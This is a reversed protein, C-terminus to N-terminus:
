PQSGAVGNLGTPGGMEENAGRLLGVLHVPTVQRLHCLWSFTWRPNFGQETPVM